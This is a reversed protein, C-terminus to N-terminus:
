FWRKVFARNIMVVSVAALVYMVIDAFDFTGTVFNFYQLIEFVTGWLSSVIAVICVRNKKRFDTVALLLFSLSFSWLFDVFYYKLFIVFINNETIKRLNLFLPEVVQPLVQHFYTGERFLAYIVAGFILSFVSFFVYTIRIKGVNNMDSMNYEIVSYIDLM